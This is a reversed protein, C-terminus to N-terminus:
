YKHYLIDSTNAVAAAEQGINKTSEVTAAASALYSRIKHAGGASSSKAALLKVHEKKSNTDSIITEYVVLLMSAIFGKTITRGSTFEGLNAGVTYGAEILLKAATSALEKMKTTHKDKRETSAAGEVRKIDYISALLRLMNEVIKMRDPDNLLGFGGWIYGLSDLKRKSIKLIAGQGGSDALIRGKRLYDDTPRICEMQRKSIHIGLEPTPCRVGEGGEVNQNAYTLIHKLLDEGLLVLTGDPNKPVLQFTLLNNNLRCTNATTKEDYPLSPVVDQTLASVAGDAGGEEADRRQPLEMEIMDPHQYCLTVCVRLSKMDSLPISLSSHIDRVCELSFYKNHKEMICMMSKKEEAKM